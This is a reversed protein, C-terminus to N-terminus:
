LPTNVGALAGTAGEVTTLVYVEIIVVVTCGVVEVVVTCGVCVEVVTCGVVEVVVVTCGVGVEVEGGTVRSSRFQATENLPLSWYKMAGMKVVIRLPLFM